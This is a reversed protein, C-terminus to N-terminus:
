SKNTNRIANENAAAYQAAPEHGYYKTIKDYIEGHQSTIKATTNKTQGSCIEDAELIISEVGHEKLKYATLIGALGGGIVATDVTMNQDLSHFTKLNVTESWISNM